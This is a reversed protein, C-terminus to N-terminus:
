NRIARLHRASCNIKFKM